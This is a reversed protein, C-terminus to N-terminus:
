CAINNTGISLPVRSILIFDGHRSIIPPGDRALHQLLHCRASAQRNAVAAGAHDGIIFTHHPFDLIPAPSFQRPFLKVSQLWAIQDQVGGISFM